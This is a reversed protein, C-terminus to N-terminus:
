RCFDWCRENRLKKKIYLFIETGFVGGIGGWIGVFLNYFTEVFIRKVAQVPPIDFIGSKFSSILFCVLMWRFFVKISNHNKM